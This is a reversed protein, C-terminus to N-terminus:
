ELPPFVEESYESDDEEVRHEDGLVAWRNALEHVYQQLTSTGPNVNVAAWRVAEAALHTEDTSYNLFESFYMVGFVMLLLVPLAVALEVM